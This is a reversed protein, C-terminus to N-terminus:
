IPRACPNALRGPASKELRSCSVAHVAGSGDHGRRIANPAAGEVGRHADHRADLALGHIFDIGKAPIDIIDGVAALRRVPPAGLERLPAIVDHGEEVAAVRRLVAVVIVQNLDADAQFRIPM